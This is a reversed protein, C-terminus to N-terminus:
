ICEENAVLLILKNIPRRLQNNQTKLHVTRVYGKNDVETTEILGMPWRNRPTNDDKILVVDGPQLNRRSENWKSRKQLLLMYEKKWRSWFLDALYQVQRWRRKLYMDERQFVGPPPVTVSSRLTLIHNPTLPEQDQPDSSVNTIPRSNVIAEVECLLTHFSDSDLRSGYEQLLGTLVKRVTRVMCEWVGGMNSGTPPNFKWDIGVQRLQSIITDQNMEQLTSKLENNAGIFNTGNDSWLEKINGRRAVFRRLVNIFTDTQLSTAVEM